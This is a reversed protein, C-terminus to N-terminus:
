AKKSDQDDAVESWDFSDSCFAAFRLHTAKTLQITAYNALAMPMAIIQGNMRSINKGTGPVVMFSRSEDDYIIRLHDRASLLRDGFPLAVREDEARGIMNLGAGLPVARGLGPGKVVVLWGTVPDDMAAADDDLTRGIAIVTRGDNQAATSLTTKEDSLAAATKDSWGDGLTETYGGDGPGGTLAGDDDHEMGELWSTKDTGGM